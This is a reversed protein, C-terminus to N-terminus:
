QNVMYRYVLMSKKSEDQFEIQGNIKKANRLVGEV